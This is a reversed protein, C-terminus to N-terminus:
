RGMALLYLSAGFAAITAIAYAFTVWRRHRRESSSEQRVVDRLKDIKGGVLYRFYQTSAVILGMVGFVYTLRGHLVAPLGAAAVLLVLVTALNIAVLFTWTFLAAVEASDGPGHLEEFLRYITFFIRDAM